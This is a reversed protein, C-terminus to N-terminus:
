SRQHFGRKPKSKFHIKELKIPSTNFAKRGFSSCDSVNKKLSATTSKFLDAQLLDIIINAYCVIETM